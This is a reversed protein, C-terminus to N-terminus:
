GAGALIEDMIRGEAKRLHQVLTPKSIDVKEALRTSNIRRPYEYYGYRHATVLADRQKDTLISLLDGREYVAQKMSISEVTGAIKRIVDVVRNLNEHTGIFTAVYRDESVLSPPVVILDLDFEKFSDLNAEDEIYKVLCTHKNGVSKLVNLIEMKGISRLDEISLHEKVAVEILDVCMGQEHDVKLMELVEYSYIDEFLARQRERGEESPTFEITMKRM